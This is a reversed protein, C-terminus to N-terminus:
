CDKCASAARAWSCLFLFAATVIMIGQTVHVAVFSESTTGQLHTQLQRTCVNSDSKIAEILSAV